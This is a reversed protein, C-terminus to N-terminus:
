FFGSLDSRRGSYQATIMEPPLIEDRFCLVPAAPDPANWLDPHRTVASKLSISQIASASGHVETVSDGQFALFALVSAVCMSIVAWLLIQSIPVHSDILYGLLLPSTSSCVIMISSFLSKVSGICEKGYMDVWLSSTINGGTGLTVGFLFMYAFAAWTGPNLYAIFMGGAVPLLHYPFLAKAGLYDVLPGIALSSIIRSLALALFASAILTASWNLQSG